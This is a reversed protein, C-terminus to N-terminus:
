CRCMQTQKGSTIVENNRYWSLKPAPNGVVQCRLTVTEGVQITTEKIKEKFQEEKKKRRDTFPNSFMTHHESPALKWRGIYMRTHQHTSATGTTTLTLTLNHQKHMNRLPFEPNSNYTTHFQTLTHM